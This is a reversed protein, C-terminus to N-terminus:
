IGRHAVGEVSNSVMCYNKDVRVQSEFAGMHWVRSVTPQIVKIGNRQHFGVLELPFDKEVARQWLHKAICMSWDPLSDDNKAADEIKQIQNWLLRNFAYGMTPFAHSLKLTFTSPDSDIQHEGGWGGMALVQAIGNSQKKFRVAADLATFFDPSILIDDELFVIDGDYDSLLDWVNHMVNFWHHKLRIEKSEFSQQPATKPFITRTSECATVIADSIFDAVELSDVAFVCDRKGTFTQNQSIARILRGLFHTRTGAFIVIPPPRPPRSQPAYSSSKNDIITTIEAAAAASFRSRTQSYRCPERTNKTNFHVSWIFFLSPALLFLAITKKTPPMEETFIQFVIIHM